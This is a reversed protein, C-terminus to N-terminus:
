QDMNEPRGAHPHLYFNEGMNGLIMDQDGDNDIDTVAVSQWCGYLQDLNTKLATFHDGEWSFLPPTM